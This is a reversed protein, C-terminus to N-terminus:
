FAITIEPFTIWTACRAYSELGQGGIRDITNEWLRFFLIRDTTAEGLEPRRDLVM